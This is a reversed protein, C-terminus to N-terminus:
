EKEEYLGCQTEGIYLKNEETWHHSPCHRCFPALRCSSCIGCRTAEMNRLQELYQSKEWYEALSPYDEAIELHRCPTFRGDANISCSVIGATCGKYKGRNINGWFKNDSALARLSSFCHQIQLYVPGDQKKVMDAVCTLQEATPYTDMKGEATPMPEIILIAGVNYKEAIKIMEPLLDATNRHMVWNIVTHSFGNRKLTELAAISLSFGDRTLSNIEETPGNLSVFITDIGASILEKLVTDDFGWGSIAISPELGTERAAAILEYLHPYCMTEGGSMEVHTAGMAAAQKMFEIAKEKPIFKAGELSCYCQPCHLPCCTTLEINIGELCYNASM